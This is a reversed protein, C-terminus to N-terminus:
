AAVGGVSIGDCWGSVADGSGRAGVAAAAAVVATSVPAAGEAGERM